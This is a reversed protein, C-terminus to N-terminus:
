KAAMDLMQKLKDAPVMGPVRQGNAFILTPTGTVRLKNGLAINSDIPNACKGDNKPLVGRLMADDWAKNRDPACWIARANAVANPHLSAIPYLFTYITVNNLQQLEPELKKCYPCDPDSFIVLKRSGDGKVVKLADSLPLSDFKVANLKATRADTLNQKTKTDIVSGIFVHSADNDAYVVQNDIVVEYLGAYPTKVVSSIKADPFQGQLTKKISAEDANASCAMLSTLLAVSLLTRKFM